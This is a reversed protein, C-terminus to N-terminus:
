AYEGGTKDLITHVGCTFSITRLRASSILSRVTRRNCLDRHFPRYWCYYICQYVTKTSVRDACLVVSGTASRGAGSRRSGVAGGTSRGTTSSAAASAAPRATLMRTAPRTTARIAQPQSLEPGASVASATLGRCQASGGAGDTAGLPLRLTRGPSRPRDFRATEASRSEVGLM